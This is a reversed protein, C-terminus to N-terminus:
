RLHERFSRAIGALLLVDKELVRIELSARAKRYFVNRFPVDLELPRGSHLTGLDGCSSSLMPVPSSFPYVCMNVRDIAVKPGDRVALAIM